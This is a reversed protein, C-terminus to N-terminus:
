TKRNRRVKTEDLLIVDREKGGALKKGAFAEEFKLIWKRVAEMYVHFKRAIARLYLGEMYLSAAKAKFERCGRHRVLYAVIM